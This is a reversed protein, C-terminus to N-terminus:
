KRTCFRPEDSGDGCDNLNNCYKSLPVCRGNSCSFEALSCGTSSSGPALQLNVPKGPGLSSSISSSSSPFGAAGSGSGPAAGGGGGGGGGAAAATAAMGLSIGLCLLLTLTAPLPHRRQQHQSQQHQQQLQHQQQQQQQQSQCHGSCSSTMKSTAPTETAKIARCQTASTSVKLRMKAVNRHQESPLCKNHRRLKCRTERLRSTAKTTAKHNPTTTAKAPATNTAFIRQRLKKPRKRSKYKQRWKLTM